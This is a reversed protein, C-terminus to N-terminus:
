LLKCKGLKEGKFNQYNEKEFTASYNKPTSSSSLHFYRWLYKDTSGQFISILNWQFVSFKM